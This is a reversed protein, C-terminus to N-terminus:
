AEDDPADGNPVAWIVLSATLIVTTVTVWEVPTVAGDTLATGLAGLGAIATGTIAKAYPALKKM